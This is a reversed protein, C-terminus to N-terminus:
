SCPCCKPHKLEIESLNGTTLNAAFCPHLFLDKHPQFLPSHITSGLPKMFTCFLSFSMYVSMLSLSESYNELSHNPIYTKLKTFDGFAATIILVQIYHILISPKGSMSIFFSCGPIPTPIDSNRFTPLFGYVKGM